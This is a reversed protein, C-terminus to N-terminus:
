PFNGASIHEKAESAQAVIASALGGAARASRVLLAGSVLLALVLALINRKKMLKEKEKMM